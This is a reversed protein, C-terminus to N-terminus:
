QAGGGPGSTAQYVPAPVAGFRRKRGHFEQLALSFTSEDFEPWMRDTFFLEAYALEWLMFDSLRKEGGTRILLNWSHESFIDPKEAAFAQYSMRFVGYFDSQTAEIGIYEGCLPQRNKAM